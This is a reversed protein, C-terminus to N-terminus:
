TAEGKKNNKSDCELSPLTTVGLTCFSGHGSLEGEVPM